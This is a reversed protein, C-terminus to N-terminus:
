RLWNKNERLFKTSFRAKINGNIVTKYNSDDSHGTHAYGDITKLEIKKSNFKKVNLTYLNRFKKQLEQDETNLEKKFELNEAMETALNKIEEPTNEILDIGEKEFIDSRIAYAVGHSFIESLSLHRKEKKLIHHKTMLLFKESHLYLIGFPLEMLAIPKNFIRPIDQYGTGTSLCFSCKAGLYIDMFDSRLDSNAYDIIKPNNSYFSKEVVAGVRFVYYGRRALEEAALTFKNIDTHRYDHYSWDQFKASIKKLNYAKDRVCLIMFKDKDKLGFKSLIKKGYVEEETTFELAQHKELMYDIDRQRGFNIIHSKWGPILRNIKNIPDLIYGSLFNFKRKWMKALQKNYIKDEYSIYVLDIYKKTPQDIKLYKKCCYIAPQLIFEGFSGSPMKEIRVVIWPSVLRIIVCPAIAIIYIPIRSLIKTILFLKRFFEKVGYNKIDTNQKKIFTKTKIILNM